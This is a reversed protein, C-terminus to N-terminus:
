SMKILQLQWVCVLEDNQFCCYIGYEVDEKIKIEGDMGMKYEEIDNKIATLAEEATEYILGKLVGFSGDDNKFLKDNYTAVWYSKNKM